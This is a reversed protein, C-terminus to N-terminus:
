AASTRWLSDIVIVIIFAATGEEDEDYEEVCFPFYRTKM